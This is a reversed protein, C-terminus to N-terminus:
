PDFTILVAFIDVVGSFLGFFSLGTDFNLVNSEGIFSLVLLM